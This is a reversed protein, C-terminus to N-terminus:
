HCKRHFCYHSKVEATLSETHTHTLACMLRKGRAWNNKGAYTFCMSLGEDRRGVILAIVILHLFYLTAEGYKKEISM